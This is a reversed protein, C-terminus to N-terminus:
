NGLLSGLGGLVGGSDPLPVTVAAKKTWERIGKQLLSESSVLDAALSELTEEEKNWNKLITDIEALYELAEEPIRVKGSDGLNKLQYEAFARIWPGIVARDLRVEVESGNEKLIIDLSMGLPPFDSTPPFSKLTEGYWQDLALSGTVFLEGYGEPGTNFESSASLFGGISGNESSKVKWPWSEGSLSGSILRLAGERGDIQLLGHIRGATKGGLDFDLISPAGALDHDIGVNSGTIELGSGSLFLEGITFRPPLATPFDVVRGREMRRHKKMKQDAPKASGETYRDMVNRVRQYIGEIRPGGVTVLVTRVLQDLMNENFGFNSQIKELDDTISEKMDAVAARTEGATDELSSRYQSVTSKVTKIQNVLGRATEVKVAWYRADTKGPVPESIFNGVEDLLKEGDRYTTELGESWSRYTEESSVKLSQLEKITADPFLPALMGPLDAFVPMSPPTKKVKEAPKEPYVAPVNRDTGTTLTATLKEINLRRQFVAKWSIDASLGSFVVENKMPDTLSAFTIEVIDVRGKMPQIDLNGIHVDTSTLKELGKEFLDSAIRDLFFFNFVVPAGLIV